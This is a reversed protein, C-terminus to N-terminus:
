RRCCPKTTSTKTASSWASRPVRSTTTTPCPQGPRRARRRSGHQLVFAVAGAVAAASRGPQRALPRLRRLPRRHEGAAHGPPRPRRRAAAVARGAPRHARPGVGAPEDAPQVAPAARRRRLRHPGVDAAPGARPRPRADERAIVRRGPRTAGRAPGIGHRIVRDAFDDAPSRGDDVNQVLRAMSTPYNRRRGIPWPPWAGTPRRTCGSTPWGSARPSTGRPRSRSSPRPPSTPPRRTTSCPSWRHVGGGAM